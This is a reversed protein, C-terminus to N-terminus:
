FFYSISRSNARWGQAPDTSTKETDNWNKTYTSNFCASSIMSFCYIKMTTFYRYPDTVVQLPLFHIVKEKSIPCGRPLNILILTLLSSLLCWTNWNGPIRVIVTCSLDLLSFVNFLSKHPANKKYKIQFASLSFFILYSLSRRHGIEGALHRFSSANPWATALLSSVWNIEETHTTPGLYQALTQHGGTSVNACHLCSSFCANWYSVKADWTAVATSAWRANKQGRGGLAPLPEANNLQTLPMFISVHACFIAYLKLPWVSNRQSAYRRCHRGKGQQVRTGTHGGRDWATSTNM